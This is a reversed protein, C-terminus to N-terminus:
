IRIYVWGQHLRSLIQNLASSTVAIQPLLKVDIGQEHKMRAITTGCALFAINPYDKQLRAIQERVPTTEVRLTDLGEANAVIEVRLSKGASEYRRLLQEIHELTSRVSQPNASSVHFIARQESTLANAKLHAPQIVQADSPLSALLSDEPIELRQWRDIGIGVGVLLAAALGYGVLQRRAFHRGSPPTKEEIPTYAARSLARVQELENLHRQLRSDTAVHRELRATTESDLEGDLYANLSESLIQSEDKM